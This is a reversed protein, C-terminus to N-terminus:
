DTTQRISKSSRLILDIVRKKLESTIEDSQLSDSMADAITEVYEALNRVLANMRQIEDIFAQEAASGQRIRARLTYIEGILAAALEPPISRGAAAELRAEEVRSKAEEVQPESTDM